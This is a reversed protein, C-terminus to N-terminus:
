SISSITDRVISAEEYKEYSVYIDLIDNLVSIRDCDQIMDILSIDFSYIRNAKISESIPSSWEENIVINLEDDYIVNYEPRLGLMDIMDDFSEQSIRERGDNYLDGVLDEIKM